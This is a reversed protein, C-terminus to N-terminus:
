GGGRAVTGVPSRLHAAGVLYRGQVLHSAFSWEGAHGHGHEPGHGHGLAAAYAATRVDDRLLESSVEGDAPRADVGIPGTRSVGVVILEDSHALSLRVGGGAGRLVPQGDPRYGVDVTHVPGGLAAAATYKVVARAVAFRMREAAAPTQRYRPWDDGLLPRLAPDLLLATLWRGWTTCVVARGSDDLRDGVEDWPGEPGSVDLPAEFAEASSGGM